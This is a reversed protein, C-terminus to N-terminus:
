LKLQVALQEPTLTLAHLIDRGQKRATSIVSRLCAFDTAGDPTRFGGSIKTKVKMMRLDQEALNNTFPVAFDTLFRLTAEKYTKLRLLLNHAPRQKKRKRPTLSPEFPPLSRHLALGQRLAAWYRTEFRKLAAPALASAGAAKAQRVAEHAGLLTARMAKAWPEHDFEDVAQLERLLHANCFAHTVDKLGYYARWHDHVVVGGTLAPMAARPQAARYFTLSPTSATHLWGTAGGVRLGTEDLCRVPARAVAAGIAQHTPALAAAKARVWGALSAGCVRRAGLLDVLVQAAREEPLLHQVNLYVGAARLREGYQAPAAVGAPFRARTRRGCAPCHHIAARHETVVLVRPPLDFVQRRVKGVLSGAGLRAQCHRCRAARHEVVHDPEAVQRLTGGGHGRQGGSPKGGPRRLSRLRRPKGLGDSCPPKSSTSSDVGLRRRLVANEERLVAVERQLAAVERRLAEIVRVAEPPVSM